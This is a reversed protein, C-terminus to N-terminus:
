WGTFNKIIGLIIFFWGFINGQYLVFGGLVILGVSVIDLPGAQIRTM